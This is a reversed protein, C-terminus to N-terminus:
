LSRHISEESPDFTAFRVLSHVPRQRRVVFQKALAPSM